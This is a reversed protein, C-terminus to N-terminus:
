GEPPPEPKPVVIADIDDDAKEFVTAAADLRAQDLQGQAVQETLAAVEAKLATVIAGLGEVATRVLGVNEAADAAEKEIRDINSSMTDVKGTLNNIATLLEPSGGQQVLGHVISLEEKVLALEAPVSAASRLMEIITDYKASTGDNTVTAIVETRERYAHIANNLLQFINSRTDLNGSTTNVGLIESMIYKRRWWDLWGWWNM